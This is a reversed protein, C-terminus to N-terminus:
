RELRVSEKQPTTRWQLALAPPSGGITGAWPFSFSLSFPSAAKRKKKKKIQKKKKKQAVCPAYPLEWALPDIPAVAAPRCCLWLLKPDSITQSRCWLECCHQIRLGNLSALSGVQMRM